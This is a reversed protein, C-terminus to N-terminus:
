LWGSQEMIHTTAVTDLM